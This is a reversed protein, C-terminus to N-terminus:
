GLKINLNKIGGSRVALNWPRESIFINALRMPYIM